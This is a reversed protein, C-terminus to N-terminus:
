SSGRASTQAVSRACRTTSRRSIRSTSTRAGGNRDKPGGHASWTLYVRSVRQTVGFAYVEGYKDSTRGSDIVTRPASWTLGSDSSTILRYTRCPYSIDTCQGHFPYITRGLFIPEPYGNRDTSIRRSSWTGSISHASYMHAAVTHEARFVALRGDPM